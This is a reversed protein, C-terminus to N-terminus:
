VSDINHLLICEIDIYYHEFYNVINTDNKEDGKKCILQYKKNKLM